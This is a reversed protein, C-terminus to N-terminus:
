VEKGLIGLKNDRALTPVHVSSFTAASSHIEALDPKGEIWEDIMEITLRKTPVQDLLSCLNIAYVPGRGGSKMGRSAERKAIFGLYELIELNKSFQNV